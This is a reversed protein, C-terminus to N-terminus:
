GQAETILSMIEYFCQKEYIDGKLEDDAIMRNRIQEYEKLLEALRYATIEQM